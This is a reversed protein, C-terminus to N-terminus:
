QQTKKYELREVLNSIRIKSPHVNFIKDQNLETVISSKSGIPPIRGLISSRLPEPREKRTLFGEEARTYSLSLKLLADIHEPQNPDLDGFIYTFCNKASLSAICPRKCQSMCRVGRVAVTSQPIKREILKKAFRAGGREGCSDERGDRCTFCISVLPIESNM